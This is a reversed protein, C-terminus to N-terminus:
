KPPTAADHRRRPAYCRPACHRPLATPSGMWVQYIKEEVNAFNLNVERLKDDVDGLLQQIHVRKSLLVPDEHKSQDVASVYADQISILKHASAEGSSHTGVMKDRLSVPQYLVPDFFDYRDYVKLPDTEAGDDDGDYGDEKLTFRVVQLPQVQTPDLIIYKHCYESAPRGDHTAAAEYEEATVQGDGDADIKDSVYLSDYGPPVVKPAQPDDQIYSRGVAVIDDPCM